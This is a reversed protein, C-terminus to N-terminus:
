QCSFQESTKVTQITSAYQTYSSPNRFTKGENSSTYTYLLCFKICSASIQIIHPTEGSWQSLIFFLSAREQFALDQRFARALTGHLRCVTSKNVDCGGSHHRSTTTAHTHHQFTYNHRQQSERQTHAASLRAQERRWSCLPRMNVFNQWTQRTTIFVTFLTVCASPKSHGTELRRFEPVPCRGWLTHTDKSIHFSNTYIVVAASFACNRSQFDSKHCQVDYGLYRNNKQSLDQATPEKGACRVIM